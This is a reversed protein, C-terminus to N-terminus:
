GKAAIYRQVPGFMLPNFKALNTFINLAYQFEEIKDVNNYANIPHHESSKNFNKM